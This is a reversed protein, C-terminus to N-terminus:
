RVIRVIKGKDEFDSNLLFIRKEIYVDILYVLMGGELFM